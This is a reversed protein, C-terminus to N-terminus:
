VLAHAVLDIFCELTVESWLEEVADIFDDHEM